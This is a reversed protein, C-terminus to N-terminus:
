EDYVFTPYIPVLGGDEALYQYIVPRRVGSTDDYEITVALGIDTAGAAVGFVAFLGDAGTGSAGEDYLGEDDHYCGAVEAGTEPSVLVTAGQQIPMDDIDGINLWMRVEGVVVVGGGEVGAEAAGPCGEWDAQLEAFWEASSVWPFGTGADFDNLGANGSFATPVYGLGAPGDVQVFFPDGEPVLAEFEGGEDTTVADVQVGEADITRVEASGVVSGAANPVDFVTGSMTVTGGSPLCGALLSTGLLALVTVTM